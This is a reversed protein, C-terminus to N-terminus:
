ISQEQLKILALMEKEANRKGPVNAPTISKATSQIVSRFSPTQRDAKQYLWSCHQQVDLSVVNSSLSLHGWHCFHDSSSTLWDSTRSAQNAQPWLLGPLARKISASTGEQSNRQFLFYHVSCMAFFLCKWLCYRSLKFSTRHNWHLPFQSVTLNCERKILILSFTNWLMCLMIVLLGSSCKRKKRKFMIKHSLFFFFFILVSLYM